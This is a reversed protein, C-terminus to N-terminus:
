FIVYRLTNIITDNTSLRVRNTMFSDILTSFNTGITDVNGNVTVDEAFTVLPIEKDQVVDKLVFDEVEVGDITGDVNLRGDVEIGNTLTYASSITQTFNVNGPNSEDDKVLANTRYNTLSIDEYYVTDLLKDVKAYKGYVSSTFTKHTSFNNGGSLYAADNIIHTMNTQERGDVGTLIFDM